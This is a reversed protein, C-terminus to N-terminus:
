DIKIGARKAVADWKRRNDAIFAAFDEPSGPKSLVGINAMIARAEDGNLGKNLAANLTQVVVDSTGAPAVIGFFTTVEYDPVGGEAVTPLDPASPVRVASTVGLARLKGDRVLPLAAEMSPFAMQAFGSMTATTFEPESRYPVGVIDVNARLRFLEGALHPLGGTTGHAYNLKGPAAKTLEVLERMTKAGLSPTVVVVQYSEWFKAIPAFATIPDYGANASVAPVVALTATNGVLLTHGDPPAAAVAKAGVAGGAGPRHEVIAPQGLKSLIDSALRAVIENPGGPGSAVIIRIPKWPYAQAEALAQGPSFLCCVAVSLSFLWRTRM